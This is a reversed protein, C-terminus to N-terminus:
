DPNPEAAESAPAPAQQPFTAPSPLPGFNNEYSTLMNQLIKVIAKAHQPSMAICLNEIIETGGIATAYIEGIFVRFDFQSFTIRAHNSYITYFDDSIKTQKRVEDPSLPPTLLLPQENAM